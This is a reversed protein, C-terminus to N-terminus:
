NSALAHQRATRSKYPNPFDNELRAVHSSLQTKLFKHAKALEETSFNVIMFEFIANTESNELEVALHYAEDLNEINTEQAQAAAELCYHVKQLMANDAPSSLREASVGARVQELYSAHGREEDAYANWFRAVEPYHSFIAAFHRYLSEAARELAIAYEFLAGVTEKEPNNM